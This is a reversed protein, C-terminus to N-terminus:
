HLTRNADKSASWPSAPNPERHFDDDDLDIVGDQARARSQDAGSFTEIKVRSSLFKWVRDRVQPIFLLLGLSDTVFGPTLLLFGALLVMVGQVLEKGPVRHMALEKQIRTLAAFGQWRLLISGAIATLIVLAITALVGIQSGVLVFVAIETLPVILFIFPLFRFSLSQGKKSDLLAIPKCIIM